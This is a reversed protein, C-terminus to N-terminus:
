KSTIVFEDRRNLAWISEDHGTAVPKKSGYSTITLRKETVGMTVMYRRAARARRKGLEQNYEYSGQEYCHGEIRVTIEPDNKMIRIHGDLVDRSKQSLYDSNYDFYIPAMEVKLEGANPIPKLAEMSAYIDGSCIVCSITIAFFSLFITNIM